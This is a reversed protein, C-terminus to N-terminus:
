SSTMYSFTSPIFHFASSGLLLDQLSFRERDATDLGTAVLWLHPTHLEPAWNGIRNMKILTYKLPWMHDTTVTISLVARVDTKLSGVVCPPRTIMKNIKDWNIKLLSSLYNVCLELFHFSCYLPPFVTWKELTVEETLPLHFGPEAAWSDSFMVPLGPVLVRVGEWIWLGHFLIM